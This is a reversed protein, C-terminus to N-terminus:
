SAADHPPGERGLLADMSCGFVNALTVLNDLCPRAWGAEWKAICGHPIGTEKALRRQSWGM